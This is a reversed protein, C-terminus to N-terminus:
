SAMRACSRPVLVLVLLVSVGEPLFQKLDEVVLEAIPMGAPQLVDASTFNFGDGGQLMYDTSVITYRGAPEIASTSGDRHLRAAALIKGASHYYRVGAVQLHYPCWARAAAAAARNRNALRQWAVWCCQAM